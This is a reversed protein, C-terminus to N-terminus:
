PKIFPILIPMIPRTGAQLFPIIAPTGLFQKQNSPLM